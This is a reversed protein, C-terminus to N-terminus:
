AANEITVPLGSARALTDRIDVDRWGLQPANLVRGSRRDVMGPVVMGIGEFSELAIRRGALDCLMLYTRSFRIDIGVVFRDRTRIHLHTPRRARPAVATTGEYIVVEAILTNVLETLMGRGVTMM